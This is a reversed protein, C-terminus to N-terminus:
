PISLSRVAMALTRLSSICDDFPTVTCCFTDSSKFNDSVLPFIVAIVILHFSVTLQSHNTLIRTNRGGGVGYRRRLFVLYFAYRRQRREARLLYIHHVIAEL